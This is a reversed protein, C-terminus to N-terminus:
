RAGGWGLKRRLRRYFGGEEFAVLKAPFPAEGVQVRDGSRLECSVQGDVTLAVEQGPEIEPVTVEVGEEPAVVLPRASLNHSCIPAIILVRLRPEVVPGGASLAYGTSGTPTAVIVGDAPFDSVEEGGVRTKMRLLRAPAGRALVVADNLGFFAAAEKGRRMVRAALMLREEVRGEGAALRALVERAEGRPVSALFGFGGLNVGLVPKGCPAGIRAATLLSGDGGFTVLLDAERGLAEEERGLEPRGLAEALRVELLPRLGRRQLWAVVEKAAAKAEPKHRAALLGVCRPAPIM